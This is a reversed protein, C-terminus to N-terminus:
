VSAEFLCLSRQTLVFDRTFYNHGVVAARVTGLCNGGAPSSPNDLNFAFSVAVCKHTADSRRATPKDDHTIGVVTIVKKLDGAEDFFEPLTEIHYLTAPQGGAPAFNHWASHRKRM